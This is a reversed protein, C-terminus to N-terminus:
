RGYKLAQDLDAILDEAHELGVSMRLSNPPAMTHIGEITPRHEILSETGGLSTARTFLKLNGCVRLADEAEGKVDFSLMAGPGNMQQKALARQPHSDLGPYYVREVRSHGELFEAIAQATAQQARVRVGLTRLGRSLLWCDFPSPVAGGLQQIQRVRTALENNADKFVLAGGLVDSHGGIYKTTSHMVIDCNLDLPRQLVPTPWTNDAVVLAGAEHAMQAILLLDTLTLLPNSPTEVWVLRTNEHIAAQVAQVDSMEVRTYTLGWPHFVQELLMPTSFYCQRPMVVHDGPRLAQLLSMTAAQGSGFAMGVAGGELTALAGEFADRNPNSFRTYGYPGVLEYTEPDREFKTSLHIPPVVAGTTPDTQHTAQIALTDFHM